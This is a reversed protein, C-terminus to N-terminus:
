VGGKTGPDFADRLRNGMVNFSIMLLSIISAPVLMLHPYGVWIGSADSLLAGLSTVGEAGLNVIGLFSLMSETFIVGPIALASATILVGLTNPFIHRWIIRADSVGMTRAALVYEAGKYRFFQGRVRSATGLWGTLVFAFLLSPVAGVRDSLYIQFLTAVVIFPVGSLVDTVRELILDVAGGYYGEVAGVLAGIMLNIASVALALLLSVRIGSATRLALDYGQSDTGLIYIPEMGNKYIYYNYYLIRVRYADPEPEAAGAPLAIVPEGSPARLYNDVLPMDFSVEIREGDADTPLGEGDARYWSNADGPAPNYENAAVLPYLVQRGSERQWRLIDEFEVRPLTKYVFGVELYADLLVGRVRGERESLSIVPSFSADSAGIGIGYLRALAEDGLRRSVAGLSLGSQGLHGLRPPLKAYYPDMLGEPRPVALPIIVSFLAIAAIVGIAIRSGLHSFFRGFADRFYGKNSVPVM